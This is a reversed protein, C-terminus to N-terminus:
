RLSPLQRHTNVLGPLVVGGGADIIETADPLPAGATAAEVRRLREGEVCVIGSEIIDFNENVTVITGNHIVLDYTM